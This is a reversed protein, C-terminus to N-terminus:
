VVHRPRATWTALRRLPLLSCHVIWLRSVLLVFAPLLETLSPIAVRLPCGVVSKPYRILPVLPLLGMTLWILETSMLLKPVRLLRSVGVIWFSILMLRCQRAPVRALRLITMRGILSSLWKLMRRFKVLLWIRLEVCRRCLWRSGVPTAAIRLIALIFRRRVSLKTWRCKIM